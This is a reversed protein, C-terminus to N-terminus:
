AQHRHDCVHILKGSAENRVFQDNPVPVINLEFPLANETVCQLPEYHQFLEESLAQSLNTDWQTGVWIDLVTRAGASRLHLQVAGAYAFSKSLVDAFHRYNMLPGAKFVDGLRGLLEFRPEQRGCACPGDVWRGLDGIEYREIRPASRMLPTFLLRGVANGQVPVDRDMEVIELTQLRTHLHHVTGSEHLCQYGMPGADNSGYAASRVLSVGCEDTLFREQAVSLPEGGYFIKKVGGWARLREGQETFLALLHPPVGVLTNVEHEIIQTAILDYDPLLGMPLQLVRLHELITWFSVFGGYLHGAAFLNMVRDQRPDLGAAVMGDATAEMQSHYDAWRFSSYAVKGSSGGSRVILGAHPDREQATQGLAQFGSKDLVPASPPPVLQPPELADLHGFYHLAEPGDFSVRRTLQQLAYVGDHPACTYSDIMEGPRTIRSVGASFLVRSLTGAGSLGTALGCTQLWARFPRLLGALQERRIPKLWITRFLPSPRLGSRTDLVIRWQGHPDEIVETLGLPQECRAVSLVTTIEAQEAMDPHRGPVTPSVRALITALRRAVDRLGAEDTEVLLNQPSSCAQQDLRCVDRAFAELVTDDDVCDAALYGFSLKHGWVVLRTHSPVMARVAAVAKEGGWVSVVDAYTFLQRLTQQESSSLRLVALYDALRGSTDNAVLASAFLGAVRGDRTSTKVVNVNGAMLGEVLGMAATTFVNSPAVHVVCGCPAWAEYQREPYRRRLTGPHENGLETRLKEEMAEKRLMSAMGQLMADADAAGRGDSAERLLAEYCGRREQMQLGVSDCATLLAHLPFTRPLTADIHAPLANLANPLDPAHLWRGFWYHAADSTDTELVSTNM